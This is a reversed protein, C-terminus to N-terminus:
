SLVMVPLPVAEGKGIAQSAAERKELCFKSNIIKLLARKRDGTSTYASVPNTDGPLQILGPGLLGAAHTHSCSARGTVLGQVVGCM